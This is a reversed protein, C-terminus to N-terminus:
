YGPNNVLNKNADMQVDSIKAVVRFDTYPIAAKGEPKTIDHGRRKLDFFRFGEFALELRRQLLVEALLANDSVDADDIGRKTRIENVDSRATTYDQLEAAAEARNLYVESIRVIPVNDQGFKGLWSSFKTTWWVKTGNIKAKRFTAFRTDKSKDYLVILDSPVCLTADGSGKAIDYGESDMDSATMGYVSHLSASGLAENTTFTLYFISEINESFVKTYNGAYVKIKADNEIVYTAAEKCEKWKGQYLYARSLLAKTALAGIRKPMLGTDNGELLKFAENLDTEILLSWVDNVDARKPYVNEGLAGGDYFFPDYVLPVGLKFDNVLHQPERSYTISLNMYLLARLSLAEGILAKSKNTEPLKRAYMLVEDVLSIMEYSETWIDLHAGVKNEAIDKYRSAVPSLKANDALVEPIAIIDRGYYYPDQMLDYVGLLMAECGSETKLLDAPLLTKSETDLLSDCSTTLLCFAIFASIYIKIKNM